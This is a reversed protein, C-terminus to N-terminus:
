VTRSTAALRLSVPLSSTGSLFNSYIRRPAGTLEISEAMDRLGALVSGIEVRALYAGLCFHAGYAFTLHRNPTRNLDFVAPRAFEDRDQNASVMWITVLQGAEIPRGHLEVDETATRGAHLAPTTWRLVEEVASEVSVSGDKLSRWQAPHEALAQVGGIIALRTTEDGGLILSYCNFIIEEYSLPEGEVTASALVSLIDNMPTDRRERALDAFYLLIENKAVWGDDPTATSRDSSLASSTWELIDARDQEPVGLLECIATLPINAAVDRAFDCDGRRVANELLQRSGRRVGTTVAELARPSFAKMLVRRLDAHRRGDTVALMRGAATDGGDLLTDLVNGRESSFRKADRFIEQVDRYRTLVWFGPRGDRAQHWHTPEDARLREWVASLDYEAHLAPSALDLDAVADAAVIERAHM